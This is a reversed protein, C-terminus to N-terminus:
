QELGVCIGMSRQLSHPPEKLKKLKFICPLFSTYYRLFFTPKLNSFVSGFLVYLEFFDVCLLV